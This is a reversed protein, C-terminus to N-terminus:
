ARLWQGKEPTGPVRHVGADGAGPHTPALLDPYPAMTSLVRLGLLVWPGLATWTERPRDQSEHCEQQLPFSPGASASGLRCCPHPSPQAFGEGWGLQHQLHFAATPPPAPTSAAQATRM